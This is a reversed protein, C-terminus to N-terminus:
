ERSCINCCIASNLFSEVEFSLALSSRLLRFIYLTPSPNNAAPCFSYIIRQGTQKALFNGFSTLSYHIIVSRCKYFSDTKVIEDLRYQSKIANRQM